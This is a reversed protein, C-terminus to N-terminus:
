FLCVSVTDKHTCRFLVLLSRDHFMTFKNSKKDPGHMAWPEVQYLITYSYLLRACVCVCLCGGERGGGRGEVSAPRYRKLYRTVSLGFGLQLSNSKLAQGAFQVDSSCLLTGSHSDHEIFRWSSWVTSM